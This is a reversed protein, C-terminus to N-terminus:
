GLDLEWGKKNYQYGAGFEYWHMLHRLADRGHKKGKIWLGSDKLKKDTFHGKAISATQMYLNYYDMEYGLQVVGILNRSYLELGTKQKGQRFEFSECVVQHPCEVTLMLWLERCNMEEEGVETIRMPFENNNNELIKGIAYGTTVGTDLAIVTIM